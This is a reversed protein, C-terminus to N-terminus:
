SPRGDKRTPRRRPKRTDAIKAAPGAPAATTAKRPHSTAKAAPEATTETETRDPTESTKAVAATGSRKSIASNTRKVPRTVTAKKTPAKAPPTGEAEVEAPKRAAPPEATATSTGARATSEQTPAHQTAATPEAPTTQVTAESEAEIADTQDAEAAATAADATSLEIETAEAPAASKRSTAPAPTGTETEVPAGSEQDVEPEAPLAVAAAATAEAAPTDSAVTEAQPLPAPTSEQAAVEEAPAPPAATEITPAAPAPAALAPSPSPADWTKVFDCIRPVIEKRFRSGNFVGYHGVDSQMYHQHKEAPLNPTLAHAAKTQGLGSIDDNEGEVTFIPTRTIQSPDVPTGRHTMEGKPLSQRLFVTDLTQLYFEATLDMVSLYEDYFERHKDASDGDGKVLHNFYDYHASVHRDLNMTVFGSLQLFGPYVKRMVGPHPFPVPMIVNRRFWDLTHKEAYANVETPNKRTDIPGGMLTLSKPLVDSKRAELLATAAFVPVAPQCVAVLHVNGDFHHIIDIIYDIFDDLSFHGAALPVKRADVWDTIYINNFPLLAEVTGRLLTAYHGSMPAVLVVNPQKPAGAPLAREFNLLRCFPRAWVVKEEVSVAVGDVITETIGFDPKGYHRTMREFLDGAAAIQRGFATHSLPNLPNKYYLRVADNIARAPSLIAHNWEYFQYYM